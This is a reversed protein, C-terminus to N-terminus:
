VELFLLFVQFFSHQILWSINELLKQVADCCIFLMLKLIYLFFFDIFFFYIGFSSVLFYIYAVWWLCWWLEYQVQECTCFIVNTCWFWCGVFCCFISDEDTSTCHCVEPTWALSFSSYFFLFWFLVVLLRVCFM